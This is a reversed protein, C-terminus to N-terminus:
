FSFEVGVRGVRPSVIGTTLLYTPGTLYSTSTAGSSNFLNFVQFNLQAKMRERIRFNKAAKINAIAIVPGRHAGFPEMRLTTAGQLLLPSSFSETRQGPLGSQARYFGSVEFGWPLNYVGSGRAEWNWTDDIPFPDANPSPRIAQIWEHNRTMWFSVQGNWKNSYRKTAAVEFTKYTDLRDGPANMVEFQNLSSVSYSAPYTYLTVPNGTLTDTLTVPVTYISYPRLINIGSATSVTTGELSNYLNTVKHYIFAGSISVNPVLQREIKAVYEYTKDQKLKPNNLENLGGTASLFNASGPNLSALTDPTADCSTNNYSVNRYQTVLCPGSWKYTTTVLADPNFTNGWLDGMTDGFLGFSGKILTKGDGFLDWAAGVRPVVAKWTLLQKGPYTAASSFQGAAKMQDPYFDSYREWRVGYNLVIRSAVKWTDTYFVSQSYLKNDPNFPYNFTQIQNPVGQNFILLYDGAAQDHLAQTNGAEFTEESGFKFQHRGSVYSVTGRAEYRNQPKDDPFDNPGTLLKTTLEQSSPNGKVDTGPQDIYHVHYGGYGGIINILLKPTPVWEVEGKWMNAPQLEYLSSPLPETSSAGQSNLFKLSHQWAGIIRVTSGPQYNVKINEQPLASVINAQPADLCTWCGAADPGSVFGLQGAILEQKSAGGYFWLKDRIIRGGFDGSFDYYRRIPNTNKLGQALLAPTINNGQFSANELDGAVDGHFDNSGSKMIAVMNVGAFPVDANNGVTKFETEALSLSDFYVATDLDHSSTVNIGEVQLYPEALVGYTVIASRAAMNSDGVDPKGQLSVGASMPLLEQLGLGKPTEQIEALQLTTGGSTNVTDVVPNSGSVEITQEVQGVKLTGDVRAAFGVSLNLDAQVLTGFGTHAFTIKYLGPSPLDVIQYSGDQDTTANVAPVQLRPGTVTVSTQPVPAGTEDTIRGTISGTGAAQGLLIAPAM